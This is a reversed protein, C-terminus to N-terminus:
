KNNTDHNMTPVQCNCVINTQPTVVNNQVLPEIGLTTNKLKVVHVQGFRKM